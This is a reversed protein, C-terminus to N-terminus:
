EFQLQFYDPVIKPVKRDLVHLVLKSVLAGPGLAQGVSITPIAKNKVWEIIKEETAYDPLSQAYASPPFTQGQLEDITANEPIGTYEELKM